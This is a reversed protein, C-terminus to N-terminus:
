MREQSMGLIGAHQLLASHTSVLTCANSLEKRLVIGESFLWRETSVAGLNTM